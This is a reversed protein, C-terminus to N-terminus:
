QFEISTRRQRRRESTTRWWVLSLAVSSRVIVIQVDRHFDTRFRPDAAAAFV